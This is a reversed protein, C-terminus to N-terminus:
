VNDGEGGEKGKQHSRTGDKAEQFVVESMNSKKLHIESIRPDPLVFLGKTHAAVASLMGRGLIAVKEKLLHYHRSILHRRLLSFSPM